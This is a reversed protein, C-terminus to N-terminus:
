LQGTSHSVCGRAECTPPLPPMVARALMGDLGDNLSGTERPLIIALPTDFDPNLRAHDAASPVASTAARIAADAHELAAALAVEGTVLEAASGVAVGLRPSVIVADAGCLVRTGVGRAVAVRWGVGVEVGVGLGVGSRKVLTGAAGAPMQFLM